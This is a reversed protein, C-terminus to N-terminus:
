KGNIFQQLKILSRMTSDLNVPAQDFKIKQLETLITTAKQSNADVVFFHQTTLLADNLSSSWLESDHTLLAQKANLINLQLHQRLSIEDGNLMIQGGQTTKAVKVLGLLSVKLNTVFKEWLNSEKKRTEALTVTSTIQLKAINQYFDDLQAAVITNDFTSQAQVADLDRALNIKLETFVPDNSSNLLEKAYNLQKVAAAYDHYLLLSQNAGTILSSFQDIILTSQTPNLRKVQEELNAQRSELQGLQDNLQQSMTKLSNIQQAQSHNLRIQSLMGNPGLYGIYVIYAICSLVLLSLLLPIKSIRTKVKIDKVLSNDINVQSNEESVKNM